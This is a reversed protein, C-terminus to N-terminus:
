LGNLIDVISMWLMYYYIICVMPLMPQQIMPQQNYYPAPQAPQQLMYAPQQQQQQMYMPQAM